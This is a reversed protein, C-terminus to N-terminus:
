AKQHGAESFSYKLPSGCYRLRPSGMNQPRHIHGLAVYDFPDFVSGDVNDTGGVSLEESDSTAAGTVFQHTLLVNRRSTDVQMASVAASLADTYSDIEAEPFYRRVHAPKVFPLMYIGVEGWKDTLVFPQVGGDYVPSFHVAAMWLGVALPWGSRLRPQRQHCVGAGKAAGFSLFDDCLAVAEASPVAKDYIDGCILVGDPQEAAICDIIQQLIYAQDELMSFGHVRKGLHLDSLHLFKM